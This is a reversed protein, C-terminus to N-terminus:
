RVVPPYCTVALFAVQFIGSTAEAIAVFYRLHRLEVNQLTGGASMPPQATVAELQKM